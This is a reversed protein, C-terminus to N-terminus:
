FNILTIFTNNNKTKKRNENESTKSSHRSQACFFSNLVLLAFVFGGCRMAFSKKRQAPNVSLFYFNCNNNCIKQNSSNNSNKREKKNTNSSSSSSCCCINMKSSM